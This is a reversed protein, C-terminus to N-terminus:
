YPKRKKDTEKTRKQTKKMEQYETNEEIKPRDKQKWAYLAKKNKEICEKVKPSAKWKPGKLAVIKKVASLETAEPVHASSNLQNQDKKKEKRRRQLELDILNDDFSSIHYDCDPLIEKLAVSEYGHLWHEQLCVITYTKLLEKLYVKNGKM